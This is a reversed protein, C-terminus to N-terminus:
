NFRGINRYIHFLVAADFCNLLIHHGNIVVSNIKQKRKPFAKMIIMLTKKGNLNNM